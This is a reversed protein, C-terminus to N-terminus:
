FKGSISIAIDYEPCRHMNANKRDQKKKALLAMLGVPKLGESYAEKGEEVRVVLSAVRLVYQLTRAM